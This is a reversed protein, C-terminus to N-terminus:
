RDFLRKEITINLRINMMKSREWSDLRAKIIKILRKIM